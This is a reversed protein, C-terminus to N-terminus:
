RAAPSRCTPVTVSNVVPMAAPDWGFPMAAPGSPLRQNVSSVPLRIPRIVGAPTTAVKPLPMVAPAPSAPMVAPGSPLMHNVSNWPALIPRKSIGVPPVYTTVLLLSLPEPLRRSAINRALLSGAGFVTVNSGATVPVIVNVDPCIWIAWANDITPGPAPVSVM